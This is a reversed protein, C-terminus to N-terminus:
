KKMRSNATLGSSNNTNVHSYVVKKNLVSKANLQMKPASKERPAVPANSKAMRNNNMTNYNESSQAM